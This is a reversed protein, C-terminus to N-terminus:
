VIPSIHIVESLYYVCFGCSILRFSLPIQCRFKLFFTEKVQIRLSRDRPQFPLHILRWVDLVEKFWSESQNIEVYGTNNNNTVVSTLQTEGIVVEDIETDPINEDMPLNVITNSNNILDLESESRISNPSYLKLEKHHFKMLAPRHSITVFWIHLANLLEYIIAETKADVASTSEDFMVLTNQTENPRYKFLAFIRIFALRQQEGISLCTSWDM